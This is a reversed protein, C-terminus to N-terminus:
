CGEDASHKSKFLAKAYSLITKGGVYVALTAKALQIAIHGVTKIKDTTEDVAKEVGDWNKKEM